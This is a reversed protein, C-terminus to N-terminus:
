AANPISSIGQHVERHCTPCLLVFDALRSLRKGGRIPVLHHAELIARAQAATAGRGKPDYCCIVCTLPRIQKLRWVLHRDRQALRVRMEKTVGEIASYDEYLPRDEPTLGETRIGREKNTLQALDIFHRAALGDAPLDIPSLELDALKARDGEDLVKLTLALTECRHRSAEPGLIGRAKPWGTIEWAEIIPYAESWRARDGRQDWRNQLDDYQEPRILDHAHVPRNALKFVATLSGAARAHLAKEELTLPRGKPNLPPLSILVYELVYGHGMQRNVTSRLGERSSPTDRSPTFGVWGDIDSARDPFEPNWHGKVASVRHPLDSIRM